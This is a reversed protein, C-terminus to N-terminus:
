DDDRPPDAQPDVPPLPLEPTNVEAVHELHTTLSQYLEVVLVSGYDPPLTLVAGRVTTKHFFGSLWTVARRIVSEREEEDKGHAASTLSTRLQTTSLLRNVRVHGDDEWLHLFIYPSRDENKQKPNNKSPKRM